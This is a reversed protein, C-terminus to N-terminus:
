KKLIILYFVILFWYIYVFWFVWIFYMNIKFGYCYISLNNKCKFSFM